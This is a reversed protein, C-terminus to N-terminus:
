VQVFSVLLKVSCPSPMCAQKNKFPTVYVTRNGFNVTILIMLATQKVQFNIIYIFDCHSKFNHKHYLIINDPLM